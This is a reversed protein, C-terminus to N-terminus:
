DNLIELRLSNRRLARSTAHQVQNTGNVEKVVKRADMSFAVLQHDGM